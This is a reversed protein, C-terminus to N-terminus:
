PQIKWREALSHAATLAEPGPEDPGFCAAEVIRTLADVSPAAGGRATLASAAQRPTERGFRIPPRGAARLVAEYVRQIHARVPLLRVVARGGPPLPCVHCSPAYGDAGVWLRTATGTLRARGDPGTAFTPGPPADLRTVDPTTADAGLLVVRATLPRGDIADLVLLDLAENAATPVPRREFPPLPPPAPRTPTSRPAPAQARRRWAAGALSLAAIAAPAWTWLPSRPPAAPVDIELAASHGDRWAPEDARALARFVVRGPRVDEPEVDVRFRGNRDARTALVPRGDATVIVSIELGPAGEVQGALAIPAGPTPPAAAEARLEVGLTAAAVFQEELRAPLRRDDGSWTVVLTHRGPRLGELALSARGAGDTRVEAGEKGDLTVVLPLEAVPWGAADKAEVVATAIEGAPVPEPLALSLDVLTRGVVVTLEAGAPGLLAGGPHEVRLTRSGEGAFRLVARFRGDPATVTAVTGAGREPVVRVPTAPLPQGLNDRLQGEVTVELGRAVARLGDFWPRAKVSVRPEAPASLPLLLLLVATLARM